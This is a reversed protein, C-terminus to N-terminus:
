KKGKILVNNAFRWVLVEDGSQLKGKLEEPIPVNQTSYDQLDMLQVVDGMVAIVQASKKEVIPVGMKTDGPKVITIKRDSFVGSAVLRAKAGGHKGPRSLQISDVKYVDDDILVFHGPKLNKIETM